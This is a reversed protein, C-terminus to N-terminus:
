ARYMSPKRTTRASRWTSAYRRLVTNATSSSSSPSHSPLSASGTPAGWPNSACNKRLLCCYRERSRRSPSRQRMSIRSSACRLGPCPERSPATPASSKPSSSPSRTTKPSAGRPSRRAKATFAASLVSRPSCSPLASAASTSSAMRRAFRRPLCPTRGLLYPEAAPASRFYLRFRASVAFFRTRPGTGPWTVGSGSRSRNRHM